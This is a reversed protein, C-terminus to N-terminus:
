LPRMYTGITMNVIGEVTGERNRVPIYSWNHYTEEPFNADTLRNFFLLDSPRTLCLWVFLSDIFKGETRYVTEGALVRVSLPGLTEWLESWATSGTKGFIEPHKSGAMVAYADNYIIVM